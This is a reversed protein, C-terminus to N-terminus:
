HGILELTKSANYTLPVPTQDMNILFAADCCPQALKPRVVVTMFDQAESVTESPSHQSKHTGM